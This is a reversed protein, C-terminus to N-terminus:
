RFTLGSGLRPQGLWCGSLLWSGLRDALPSLSWKQRCLSRAAARWVLVWLQEGPRRAAPLSAAMAVSPQQLPSSSLVCCVVADTSKIVMLLLLKLLHHQSSHTVPLHSAPLLRAHLWRSCKRNFSISFMDESYGTYQLELFNPVPYALM